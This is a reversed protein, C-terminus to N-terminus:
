DLQITNEWRHWEFMPNTQRTNLGAALITAAEATHCDITTLIAIPLSDPGCYHCFGGRIVAECAHHTM